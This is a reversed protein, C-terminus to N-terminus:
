LPAVIRFSLKYNGVLSSHSRMALRCKRASDFWSGGRVRRYLMQPNPETPGTPDIVDESTYPASWDSCWEQSNGHMDFLGYNNTPNTFSGVKYAHKKSAGEVWGLDKSGGQDLDYRYQYNINEMTSDLVRGTGIGFPNTNTETAKNPYDGRAAYEWQAETPLTGGAWAAFEVAGYWSVYIVPLEDQGSVPIWKGDVYNVGWNDSGEMKVSSDDILDQTGYGQTTIFRGDSGINNANLFTCFQVNTTEYKSMKFGKTLTVKHQIEDANREPESEPSGMYFSGAPITVMELVINVVTIACTASKGGETTTATIIAEGAAVAMVEGADSVTAIAEDSSSWKVSKNEANEPSVTVTLIETKGVVLSTAPKNISIGEVNIPDVVDKKCSSLAVIAVLMLVSFIKSM